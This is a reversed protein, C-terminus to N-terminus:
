TKHTHLTTYVVCPIKTTLKFDAFANDYIEHSPFRTSRMRDKKGDDNLLIGHYLKLDIETVIAVVNTDIIYM